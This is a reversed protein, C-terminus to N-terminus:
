RSAAGHRTAVETKNLYERAEAVLTEVPRASDLVLRECEPHYMGPRMPGTDRGVPNSELRKRTALRADRLETSCQCEVMAWAAGATEAIRRTNTEIAPWFCPSDMVVSHGDALFREAQANMVEYAPAGADGFATGSRILASSIVDKDIVVAPLARGLARAVTTKGSGPHGHMQILMM